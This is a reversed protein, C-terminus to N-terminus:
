IAASMSSRIKALSIPFESITQNSEIERLLKTDTNTMM